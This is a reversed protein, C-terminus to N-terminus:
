EAIEENSEVEVPLEVADASDDIVLDTDEVPAIELDDGELVVEEWNNTMNDYFMRYGESFITDCLIFYLGAIIVLWFIAWTLQAFQKLTPFKLKKVTELSDYIFDLM